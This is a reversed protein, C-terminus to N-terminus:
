AAVERTRLLRAGAAVLVASVVAVLLTTAGLDTWAMVEGRSWAAGPLLSELQLHDLLWPGGPVAGLRARVWGAAEGVPGYALLIEGVTGVAVLAIMGLIGVFWSLRTSLCAAAAALVGGFLLVRWTGKALHLVFPEGPLRLRVSEPVLGMYDDETLCALRVELPGGAWFTRDLYLLTPHHGEPTFLFSRREGDPRVFTAEAAPLVTAPSFADLTFGVEVCTADEGLWGPPVDDFRFVAVSRPREPRGVLMQRGGMEAARVEPPADLHFVRGGPGLIEVAGAGAGVAHRPDGALIELALDEGRPVALTGAEARGKPGVVPVEVVARGADETGAAVPVKVERVEHRRWLRDAPTRRTRRALASLRVTVEVPAKPDGGDRHVRLAIRLRCPGAPGAGEAPAATWTRLPAGELSWRLRVGSMGVVWRVAPGKAGGAGASPPHTFDVEFRPGADARRYRYTALPGTRAVAELASLDAPHVARRRAEALRDAAMAQIGRSRYAVYGLLGGAVVALMGALLLTLGAVRGAVVEWASVPKTLVVYAVKSEMEAPTPYTAFFVGLIVALVAMVFTGTELAAPVADFVPDFRPSSLDTVVAVALALVALVWLRMRLGQRLTVLALGGVRRGFGLRRRPVAACPHAHPTAM